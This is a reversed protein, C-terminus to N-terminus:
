RNKSCLKFKMKSHTLTSFYKTANKPLSEISFKLFVVSLSPRAKEILLVGVLLPSLLATEVNILGMRFKPVGDFLICVNLNDDTVFRVTLIDLIENIKIKYLKM